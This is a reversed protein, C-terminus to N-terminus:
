DPVVAVGDLLTLMGDLTSGSVTVTTAVPRQPFGAFRRDRAERYM